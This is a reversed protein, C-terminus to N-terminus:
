SHSVVTFITNVVGTSITAYLSAGPCRCRQLNRGLLLDGYQDWLAAPLAPAHHLCRHTEPLQPCPLTRARVQKEQSMRASEDKMEQIDQAVDKTGRLRQLVEKAKRRGETLSCSDLVKLAFHFPLASIIAPVITFGLLLPWLDKTGLIVKLGFIQAVLIGIVIGLQNLTSLPARLTTPSIEEIYM